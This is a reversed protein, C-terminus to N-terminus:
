HKLQFADDDYQQFQDHVKLDHVAEMMKKTMQMEFLLRSLLDGVLVM